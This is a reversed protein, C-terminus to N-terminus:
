PLFPPSTPSADLLGPWGPPLYPPSTPSEDADTPSPPPTAVDGRGRSEVGSWGTSPSGPPTDVRATEADHNSAPM